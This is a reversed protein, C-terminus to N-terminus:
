NRMLLLLDDETLSPLRKVDDLHTVRQPWNLLRPIHSVPAETTTPKLGNGHIM